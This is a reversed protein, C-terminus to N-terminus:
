EKKQEIQFFHHLGALAACLADLQPGSLERCARRVLQEHFAEHAALVPGAKETLAVVVRRKDRADRTRTVYGKQELTKVAVTMTGGTVGVAAAVEAMGPAGNQAAQAIADLIHLETVSLSRCSQRLNNEELRLIDNFVGVLFGNLQAEQQTM